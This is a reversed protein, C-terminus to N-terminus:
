IRMTMIVYRIHEDESGTLLCASEANSLHLQLHTSDLSQIAQLLYHINLKIEIIKRSSNVIDLKEDLTENSTNRALVLMQHESFRLFVGDNPTSLLIKARQLAALFHQRPILIPEEQLPPILQAYDFYKAGLLHVSLQHQGVQLQMQREGLHLQVSGESKALLKSLEAVAKKSLLVEKTASPAELLAEACSLRYGDSAVAHLSRGEDVVNLLLGNFYLRSDQEAMSFRVKQLLQHLLRGEMQLQQESQFVMAPPFDQAPLTALRFMSEGCRIRLQGEEELCEIQSGAEQHRVVELLKQVSVTLAGHQEVQVQQLPIQIQLSVETDTGRLRLGTEDAELLVHGIIPMTSKRESISNMDALAESLCERKIIFKM